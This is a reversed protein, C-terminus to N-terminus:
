KSGGNIEVVVEALYAQAAKYDETLNGSDFTALTIVYDSYDHNPKNLDHNLEAKVRVVTHNDRYSANDEELYMTRVYASNVTMTGDKSIIFKM